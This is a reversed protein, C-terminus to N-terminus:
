IHLDTWDQTFLNHVAHSYSLAILIPVCFAHMIEHPFIDSALKADLM